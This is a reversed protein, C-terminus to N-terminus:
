AVTDSLDDALLPLEPRPGRRPALENAEDIIIRVDITVMPTKLQDVNWIPVGASKCLSFIM